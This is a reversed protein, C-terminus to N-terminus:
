SSTISNLAKLFQTVEEETNYHALSVRVGDALELAELTHRSYADRVRHYVVFGRQGLADVLEPAPLGACNFLVTADRQTLDDTQGAMRFRACALLGPVDDSGHLLREVLFRDRKEIAAMAAAAGADDALWDLYGMVESWAAFATPDRTGLDWDADGKGCLKDHNLRALRDSLWAFCVGIKSYTKYPSFCYADCGLETVCVPAHVAHQCGDVLIFCNPSRERVAAVVSTVDNLIGTVNSSHVITVGRTNEDVVEAVADATVAGSVRDLAAVRWEMGAREALIRTADYTAPHDLQTTVVNGSAHADVVAHLIRFVNATTSEGALVVGADAGLFRMVDARGREIVCQTERSAASGRGANDPLSAYRVTSEIVSKLTLSGGANEFYVREGTWTDAAVCAFRDRIAAIREETFLSRM